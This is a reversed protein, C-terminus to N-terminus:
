LKRCVVIFTDAWFNSAVKRYRSLQWFHSETAFRPEQAFGFARLLFSFRDGIGRPVIAYMHRAGFEEIRFGCSELAGRLGKKSFFRVHGPHQVDSPSHGSMALARYGWFASNPTSLYLCGNPKLVRMVEALFAKTDVLHEIVESAYVADFVADDFTMKRSIDMVFGEAPLKAFRDIAVPSIDVGTVMHGMDILRSANLGTGCGIDLISLSSDAPVRARLYQKSTREFEAGHAYKADSIHQALDSM